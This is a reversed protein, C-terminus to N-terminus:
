IFIRTICASKTFTIASKKIDMTNNCEKGPKLKEKQKTYARKDGGIQDTM